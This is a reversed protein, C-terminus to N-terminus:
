AATLSLLSVAHEETLIPVSAALTTGAGPRSTVHLEGGVGAVRERLYALGYHRTPANLTSSQDPTFGVGDDALQFRIVAGRRSIALTVCSARAHKRINNLGERLLGILLLATPEPIDDEALHIADEVPPGGRERFSRLCDELYVRLGEERLRVPALENVAGRAEGLAEEALLKLTCLEDGLASWRRERWTAQCTVARLDISALTQILGDHLESAIRRREDVGAHYRRQEQLRATELLPGAQAALLEALEQDSATFGRAGRPRRAVLVGPCGRSGPLRTMLLDLSGARTEGADASTAGSTELASYPV